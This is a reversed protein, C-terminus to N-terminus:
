GAMVARSANTFAEVAAAVRAKAAIDADHAMQLAKAKAKADRTALVVENQLAGMDIAPTVAKRNAM